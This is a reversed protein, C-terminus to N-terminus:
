LTREKLRQLLYKQQIKKIQDDDLAGQNNRITKGAGSSRTNSESKPRTVVSPKKVQKSPRAFDSIKEARMKEFEIQEMYANFANEENVEVEVSNDFQNDAQKEDEMDMVSVGGEDEDSCTEWSSEACFEDEEESDAVFREEFLERDGESLESLEGVNSLRNPTM